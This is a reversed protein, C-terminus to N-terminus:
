MPKWGPTHRSTNCRYCAVVLNDFHNSGGDALRIVHDRSPSLPGSPFQNWDCLRGCWHCNLGRHEVLYSLPPAEAFSLRWGSHLLELPIELDPKPSKM